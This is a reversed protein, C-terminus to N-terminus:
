AFIVEVGKSIMNQGAACVPFAQPKPLRFDQVNDGGRLLFHAKKAKAESCSKASKSKVVFCM